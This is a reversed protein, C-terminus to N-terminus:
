IKSPLIAILICKSEKNAYLNGPHFLIHPSAVNYTIKLYIWVEKPLLFTKWCKKKLNQYCTIRSAIQLIM